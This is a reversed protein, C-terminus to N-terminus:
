AHPCRNYGGYPKVTVSYSIKSNDPFGIGDGTVTANTWVIDDNVAQIGLIIPTNDELATTLAAQGSADAMDFLLDITFDGYTMKGASVTTENSSMCGIETVERSRTLEGLSQPCTAEAGGEIATIAAACDTFPTAPVDLIYVQVGQVDVAAIAM